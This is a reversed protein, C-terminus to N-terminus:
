RASNVTSPLREGREGMPVFCYGDSEYMEDPCPARLVNHKSDASTGWCGGNITIFPGCPPRMQGKFPQKPVSHRVRSRAGTPTAPAPLALSAPSKNTAREAAEPGVNVTVQHTQPMTPPSAHRFQVFAVLSLGVSVLTAAGWVSWTLRDLKAASADLKADVLDVKADTHDLTAKVTDLKADTHDLTAKVTDLKADTHDLTAKVTDLTADTHNLTAKATALNATAADLKTDVTDLKGGLSAVKADVQAVVAKARADTNAAVRAVANQAADHVTPVVAASTKRALFRALALPKPLTAVLERALERVDVKPSPLLPALNEAVAKPDVTATLSQRAEPTSFGSETVAAAIIAPVEARFANWTSESGPAPEMERVEAARAAPLPERGSLWKSVTSRDVEFWDAINQHSKYGAEKFLKKLVAPTLPLDEPLV